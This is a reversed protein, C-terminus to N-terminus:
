AAEQAPGALEAKPSTKSHIMRVLERVPEMRWKDWDIADWVEDFTAVPGALASRLASAVKGGEDVESDCRSCRHGHESNCNTLAELAQEVVARDIIITTM